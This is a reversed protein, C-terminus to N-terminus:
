TSSGPCRRRRSALAHLWAPVRRAAGQGRDARALRRGAPPRALRAADPRRQSLRHLREPLDAPRARPPPRRRLRRGRACDRAMRAPSRAFSRRRSGILQRTRDEVPGGPAPAAYCAGTSDLAAGRDSSDGCSGPECRGGPRERQRHETPTVWTAARREVCYRTVPPVSKASASCRKACRAPGPSAPAAGSRRNRRPKAPAARSSRAIARSGASSTSCAPSM